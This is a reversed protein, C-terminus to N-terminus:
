SWGAGVEVILNGFGDVTARDGAAIVTTTDMQEILMPGALRTGPALGQRDLVPVRRWVGDFSVPRESGSASASSGALREPRIARRRGIVSSKLNVLMAGIEPLEIGFRALYAAEFGRRLAAPALESADLAVELLHTQGRFQMDARHLVETGAIEIGSEAIARRGREGQEALIAALAEPETQDL